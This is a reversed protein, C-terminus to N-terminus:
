GECRARRSCTYETMDGILGIVSTFSDVHIRGREEDNWVIGGAGLNIMGM